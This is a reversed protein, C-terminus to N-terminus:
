LKMQNAMMKQVKKANVKFKGLYVYIIAQMGGAKMIRLSHKSQADAIDKVISPHINLEEAVERIVDENCFVKRKNLEEYNVLKKKNLKAVM